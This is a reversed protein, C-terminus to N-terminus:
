KVITVHGIYQHREGVKDKVNIMYVYVDVPAIENSGRMTGKWPENIDETRFVLNGWRDYIAMEFKDINEGKVFFADNLGSGNPTFANPIYLTFDPEIVLCHTVSDVCAPTNEVKLKVCYEGVDSYTHDPSPFSSINNLLDLSDGFNWSWGSANVSQDSFLIQPYNISAPQPGYTFEAEPMASVTIMNNTTLSSTCGANSTDSLTVSYVGASNFCHVPSQISNQTNYTTGDITWNWGTINGGTVSSLDNFTVCLPACGSIVSSSFSIVPLPNVTVTVVDTAPLTTCGDTLTITYTTTIAPSVTFNSASSSSGGPSWTYTYSLDGGMGAATLLTSGGSCIYEDNSATVSLAPRVTVTVSPSNVSPCGNGDVASVTYTTTVSPSVMYPNGSFVPSAWTYVYGTGQTGGVASASLTASQGICIPPVPAVADIFVAGPQSLTTTVTSTCGASDTVTLTYTGSCLGTATAAAQGNNWLYTYPQIGSSATGTATGDCGGNCTIPTTGTLAATVGPTNIVTTTATLQCNYADSVTVTYTGAALNSATDNTQGGPSWAYLYGPVGGAANVWASGDPQNCHSTLSATSLVIPSPQQIQVSDSVTCGILDTVTVSDTGACLGSISPTVPGSQWSYTYPPFSGAAIVNATGDCANFCSAPTGDASILLQTGPTITVVDTGACGNPDSVTVTYTTTAAPSVV